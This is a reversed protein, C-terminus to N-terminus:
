SAIKYPVGRKEADAKMQRYVQPTADKPIIVMGGRGGQGGDNRAGGGTAGSAAFDNEYDEDARLEEVLDAVTFPTGQGDKIRPQRKADLVVATPEGNVMRVEVHKLVPDRLKKVKGGAATIADDAATRATLDYIKADRKKIEEAQIRKLEEYNGSAKAADERAKVAFELDATVEEPTRDGLVAARAALARKEAILKQNAAKLGSTDEITADLHFKGDREVFAGRAAEPIADLSDAVLPLPM